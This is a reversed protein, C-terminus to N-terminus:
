DDVKEWGHEVFTDLWRDQTGGYEGVLEITHGQHDFAFESITLGLTANHNDDRSPHYKGINRYKQCDNCRIKLHQGM